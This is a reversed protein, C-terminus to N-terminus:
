TAVYMGSFLQQTWEWASFGGAAREAGAEEAAIGATTFGAAVAAAAAEGVGEQGQVSDVADASENVEVEFDADIDRTSNRKQRQERMFARLGDGRGKRKEEPTEETGTKGSEAGASCNASLSPEAHEPVRLRDLQM